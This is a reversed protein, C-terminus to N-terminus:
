DPLYQAVLAALDPDYSRLEARTNVANYSGNPPSAEANADFWDAVGEAFYDGPQMTAFTGRWLGAGRAQDYLAQLRGPFDPEVAGIGLRLGHSSNGVLVGAGLYVD